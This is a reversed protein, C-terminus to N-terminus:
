HEKHELNLAQIEGKIMGRRVKRCKGFLLFCVFFYFYFEMEGTGKRVVGAEETIDWVGAEREGM